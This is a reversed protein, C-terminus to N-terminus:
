TYGLTKYKHHREREREDGRRRCRRPEDVRMAPAVAAEGGVPQKGGSVGWGARFTATQVGQAPPHTVVVVEANTREDPEMSSRRSWRQSGGIPHGVYFCM